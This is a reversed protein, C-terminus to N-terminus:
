KLGVFIPDPIPLEMDTPRWLHLVNPHMNVYNSKPPHYQVVCDEDDWFVDKVICVEDWTPTRKNGEEDQVHVSVHEWGFMDSAITFVATGENILFAFAGCNGYSVDTAFESGETIRHKEPVHFM